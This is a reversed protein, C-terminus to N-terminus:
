KDYLLLFLVRIVNLVNEKPQLAIEPDCIALSSLIILEGVMLRKVSM